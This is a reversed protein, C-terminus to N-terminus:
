PNVGLEATEVASLATLPVAAHDEARVRERHKCTARQEARERARDSCEYECSSARQDGIDSTM